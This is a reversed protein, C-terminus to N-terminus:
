FWVPREFSSNRVNICKLCRAPYQDLNRNDYVCNPMLLPFPLDNPLIFFRDFSENVAQFYGNVKEVSKNVNVINGTIEAPPSDFISGVQNALVNVKYWYEYGQKTTASQYTTFYHRDFFTNDIERKAVLNNDISTTEINGGNFLAFHQPDANQSVYCNPPTYGFPDPFDTPVIAYVEEVNWKLYIDESSVPLSSKAFIKLFSKELNAGEADTVIEKEIEYTTSVIGSMMPVREPMSRYVEGDQLNVDLHYTLGPEASFGELLYDGPKNPNEHYFFSQGLEDVLIVSADTVPFPLRQTDATRGITVINRESITSVQGSIAIRGKGVDAPFDIPTLCSIMVGLTMFILIDKIIRRLTM